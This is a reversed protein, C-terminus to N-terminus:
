CCGFQKVHYICVCILLILRWVKDKYLQKLQAVGEFGKEVLKRLNRPGVGPITLLDPNGVVVAGGGGGGNRQRRQVRAKVNEGDNGGDNETSLEGGGNDSNGAYTGFWARYPAGISGYNSKKFVVWARFPVTNGSNEVSCSCPRCSSPTMKALGLSQAAATSFPNRPHQMPHPYRLTATSSSMKKVVKAGGSCFGLSLFSSNSLPLSFPTNVSLIHPGSPSKRLLKQMVIACRVGM